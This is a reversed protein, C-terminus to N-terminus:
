QDNELLRHLIDERTDGTKVFEGSIRSTASHHRLLYRVYEPQDSSVSKGHLILNVFSFDPNGRAKISKEFITVLTIPEYEEFSLGLEELTLQKLLESSHIRSEAIDAALLAIGFLRVYQEHDVQSLPLQQAEDFLQM